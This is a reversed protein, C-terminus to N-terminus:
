HAKLGSSSTARAERYFYFAVPTSQASDSRGVAFANESEKGTVLLRAASRLPPINIVEVCLSELVYPQEAYGLATERARLIRRMAVFFAKCSCSGSRSLSCKLLRVSSTASITPQLSPAILTPLGCMYRAGPFRSMAESAGLLYGEAFFDARRVRPYARSIRPSWSNGCLQM